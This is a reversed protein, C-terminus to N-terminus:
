RSSNPLLRLVKEEQGTKTGGSSGQGMQSEVGELRTTNPEEAHAEQPDKRHKKQTQADYGINSAEDVANEDETRKNPTHDESM